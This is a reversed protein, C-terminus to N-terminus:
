LQSKRNFVIPVKKDDCSFVIAVRMVFMNNFYIRSLRGEKIVLMGSRQNFCIERNPIIYADSGDQHFKFDLCESYRRDLVRVGCMGVTFTSEGNKYVGDIDSKKTGLKSCSSSILLM